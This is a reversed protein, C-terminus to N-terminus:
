HYMGSVAAYFAENSPAKTQTPANAEVLGRYVAM